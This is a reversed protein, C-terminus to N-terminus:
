FEDDGAVSLSTEEAVPGTLRLPAPGSPLQAPIYDEEDEDVPSPTLVEDPEVLEAEVLPAGSSVSEVLKSSSSKKSRTYFYYAGGGIVATATLAVVPWFWVQSTIGPPTTSAGPQKSALSGGSPAMGPPLASPASPPLFPKAVQPAAPAAPKSYSVAASSGAAKSSKSLASTLTVSGLVKEIKTKNDSSYTVLNWLVDNYGSTTPTWVKGVGSYTGPAAYVLQINGNKSVLFTGAGDTVSASDSTGASYSSSGGSIWSSLQEMYSDGMPSFESPQFSM